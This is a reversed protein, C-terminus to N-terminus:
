SKIDKLAKLLESGLELTLQNVLKLEDKTIEDWHAGCCVAFNGGFEKRLMLAIEETVFFEKHNQFNVTQIPELRAGATVTGLHPKDGGTILICLDEGMFYARLTLKIRGMGKEVIIM